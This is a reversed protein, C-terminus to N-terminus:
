NDVHAM